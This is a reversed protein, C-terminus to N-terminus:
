LTVSLGPKNSRGMVASYSQGDVCSYMTHWFHGLKNNDSSRWIKVLNSLKQCVSLWSLLIIHPMSM